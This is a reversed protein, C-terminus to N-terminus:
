LWEMRYFPEAEEESLTSLADLFELQFSAVGRDSAKAFAREAAVGYHALGEAAAKIKDDRNIALYAALVGGLLCGTGVVRTLWEHGNKITVTRSGDTVVDQEGTVVILTNLEEAARKALVVPDTKIQADVGKVTGVEGLIAAIEGANGRILTIDVHQLIRAVLENRFSTAGAGVPDLIVPTGKKNAAQGAHIMSEIVTESPTGINLLLADAAEAMEHTEEKAYAMVPSAGIALLGNATFNTVVINTMCHILPNQQRLTSM